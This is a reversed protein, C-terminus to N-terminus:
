TYRGGGRWYGGRDGNAATGTATLCAATSASMRVGIAPIGCFYPGRPQGIDPRGFITLSLPPFGPGPGGTITRTATAGGGIDRRGFTATVPFPRSITFRFNPLRCTSRFM